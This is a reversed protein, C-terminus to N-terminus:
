GNDSLLCFLHPHCPSCLLGVRQLGVGELQQLVHQAVSACSEEVEVEVLCHLHLTSYAGAFQHVVVAAEEKHSRWLLSLAEFLHSAQHKGLNVFQLLAVEGVVQQWADDVVLFATVVLQQLAVASTGVLEDIGEDVLNVPFLHHAADFADFADGLRLQHGKGVIEEGVAIDGHELFLADVRQLLFDVLWYDSRDLCVAVLHALEHLVYLVRLHFGYM